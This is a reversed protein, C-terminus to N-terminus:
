LNLDEGNDLWLADENVVPAKEKVPAPKDGLLVLIRDLKKNLNGIELKLNPASSSRDFSPKDYSRKFNPRDGYSRKETQNGSGEFCSSCLVPKTGNPKFPVTCSKGCDNCTTRHSIKQDAGGKWSPSGGYSNGGRKNGGKFGSQFNKM